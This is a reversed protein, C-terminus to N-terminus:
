KLRSGQPTPYGVARSQRAAGSRVRQTGVADAYLVRRLAKDPARYFNLQAPKGNRQYTFPPEGISVFRERNQSDTKFWVVDDVVIAFMLGDLFLGYGGFMRRAAVAGLPASLELVWDLFERSVSM